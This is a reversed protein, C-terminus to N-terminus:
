GLVRIGFERRIDALSRNMYAAHDHAPWRKPMRVTCAFLRLYDPLALVTAKILNWTGADRFVQRIQPYRLLGLYERFTVTTGFLTWPDALAEGHLSTDCGFVVHATDHVRLAQAVERGGHEETILGPIHAYYEDLGEKLTQPSDQRQYAHRLARM